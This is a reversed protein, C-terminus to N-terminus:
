EHLMIQTIRSPDNADRRVLILRSFGEARLLKEAEEITIEELAPKSPTSAPDLKSPKDSAMTM